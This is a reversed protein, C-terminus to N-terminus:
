LISRIIMYALTVFLISNVRNFVGGNNSAKKNKKFIKRAYVFMLEGFISFVSVLFSVVVIFIDSNFSNIFVLYFISSVFASMLISCAIGEYSRGLNNYNKGIYHDGLFYFIKSLLVILLLYFVEYINESRLFLLSSFATGIFINSAFLFIADKLEYGSKSFLLPILNVFFSAALLRSDISSSHVIAIFVLVLYNLIEIYLPIRATTKYVKVIEYFSFLSIVASYINFADKGLVLLGFSVAFFILTLINKKM